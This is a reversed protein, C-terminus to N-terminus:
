KIERIYINKFALNSGHAQLEVPGKPFIPQKRDWYNEMTVNDVVVFGNLTVTVKDGVMTIHFTNWEGVPNDAVMLPKSMNKQNNYLGGSGVQAGVKTLAIDWIQVQPAGRLYIGSDGGKTIRWDVYMEFDGYEKISCLNHGKGNFLIMEDKAQWCEHMKKDAEKQKLGLVRKSLEKKKIPNTVFGQWGDLNEGNFMSVFGEKGAIKKLYDEIDIKIYQSDGGKLLGKCKALQEEVFEGYLGNDVGPDPMAVKVMAWAAPGQLTEKDLFSSLCLFSLYTKASGMANIVKTRQKDSQAFPMIQKLKLLRQDDPLSSSAVKAVYADFAKERDAKPNNEKSCVMYLAPAAHYDGWNVLAKLALASQKATYQELVKDVV